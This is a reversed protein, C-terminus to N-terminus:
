ATKGAKGAAIHFHRFHTFEFRFGAIQNQLFAIQATADPIRLHLAAAM